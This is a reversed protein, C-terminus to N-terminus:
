RSRAPPTLTPTPTVLPEPEIHWGAAELREVLLALADSSSLVQEVARAAAAAIERRAPTRARARTPRRQSAAGAAARDDHENRVGHPGVPTKVTWNGDDGLVALAVLGIRRM